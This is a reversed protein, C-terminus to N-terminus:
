NFIFYFPSVSDVVIQAKYVGEVLTTNLDVEYVWEGITLNGVYLAYENFKDDTVSIPDKSISTIQYEKDEIYIRKDLSIKSINDDKIYCTTTNDNVICVTSLKTELKGFFGWICVGCLFVIITILIIWVGPNTVKIYSNLEEPSSLKDQQSKRFIKKDM